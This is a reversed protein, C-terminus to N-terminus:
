KLTKLLKRRRVEAVLKKFNIRENGVLETNRYVRTWYVFEELLTDDPMAQIDQEM